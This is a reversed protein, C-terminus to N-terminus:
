KLEEFDVYEGEDDGVTKKKPPVFNVTTEGAQRASSNAATNQNGQKSRMANLGNLIRWLVWVVLITYFVDRMQHM